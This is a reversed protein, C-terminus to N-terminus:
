VFKIRNTGKELQCIWSNGVRQGHDERKCNNKSKRKRITKTKTKSKAKRPVEVNWFCPAKPSSTLQPNATKEKRKEKNKKTDVQDVPFSLLFFSLFFSPLGPFSFLCLVFFAFVYFFFFFFFFSFPFHFISFLSLFPFLFSIFTLCFSSFYLTFPLFL